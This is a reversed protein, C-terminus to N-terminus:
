AAIHGRVTCRCGPHSDSMPMPGQGIKYPGGAANERCVESVRADDATVYDYEEVGMERYQAAKGSVQAHAMESRALREWDYERVDFRRRLQRAVDNPNQGNYLGDALGHVIDDRYTRVTANRVLEMGRENLTRHMLARTEDIAAEADFESAANQLGRAWANFAQQLLPGRTSGAAQTFVQEMEAFELLARTADFQFGQAGDKTQKAETLGLAHLTHAELSRWLGLLGTIARREIRPLNADPEAFPEGQEDPAKALIAGKWHGFPIGAQRAKRWTRLVEVVLQARSTM